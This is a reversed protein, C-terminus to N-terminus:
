RLVSHAPLLLHQLRQRLLLPLGRSGPVPIGVCPGPIVQVNLHLGEEGLLLAAVGLVNM